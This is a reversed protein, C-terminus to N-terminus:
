RACPDRRLGRSPQLTLNKMSRIAALVDRARPGNLLEPLEEPVIQWSVGFKDKAWGCQGEGEVCLANWYYDIEVQDKCHVVFSIAESFAFHPGGNLATFPKGDLEFAVTLVDSANPPPVDTRRVRRIIKSNPFLAVYFEAAEEAEHDFWLFPTIDPM